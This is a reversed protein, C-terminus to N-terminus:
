EVCLVAAGVAARLKGWEIRWWGAWVRQPQAGNLCRVLYPCAVGDRLADGHRMQALPYLDIAAQALDPQLVVLPHDTRQQGFRQAVRSVARDAGMRLGRFFDLLRMARVQREALFFVASKAEFLAM